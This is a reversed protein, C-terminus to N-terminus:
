LNFSSLNPVPEHNCNPSQISPIKVVDPFMSFLLLNFTELNLLHAVKEKLITCRDLLFASRGSGFEYKSQFECVLSLADRETLVSRQSGMWRKFFLAVALENILKPQSPKSWLVKDLAELLLLDMQIFDKGLMSLKDELEKQLVNLKIDIHCGLLFIELLCYVATRPDVDLRLSNMFAVFGLTLDDTTYHTKPYLGTQVLLADHLLETRSGVSTFDTSEPMIFVKVSAEKIRNMTTLIQLEACKLLSPHISDFSGHRLLSSSCHNIAAVIQGDQFKKWAVLPCNILEHVSDEGDNSSCEIFCVEQNSSGQEILVNEISLAHEKM